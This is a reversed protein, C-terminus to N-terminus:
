TIEPFGDDLFKFAEKSTAANQGANHSNVKKAEWGDRSGRRSRGPAAPVALAAAVAPAGRKVVAMEPVEIEQLYYQFIKSPFLM